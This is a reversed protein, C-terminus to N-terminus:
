IKEVVPRPGHAFLFEKDHNHVAERPRLAEDSVGDAADETSEGIDVSYTENKDGSSDKKENSGDQKDASNGIGEGSEEPAKGDEPSEDDDQIVRTRSPCFNSAPTSRFRYLGTSTSPCNALTGAGGPRVLRCLPANDVNAPNFTVGRQKRFRAGPQLNQARYFAALQAGHARNQAPAACRMTGSQAIANAPGTFRRAICGIGGDFTSAYPFKDCDLGTGSCYNSGGCGINARRYGAATTQTNPNPVDPYLACNLVFDPIAQVLSGTIFIVTAPVLLLPKFM